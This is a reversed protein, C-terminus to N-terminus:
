SNNSDSTGYYYKNKKTEPIPSEFDEPLPRRPSSIDETVNNDRRINFPIQSFSQYPLPSTPQYSTTSMISDESHWNTNCSIKTATEFISRPPTNYLPKPLSLDVAENLNLQAMDQYFEIEADQDFQHLSM